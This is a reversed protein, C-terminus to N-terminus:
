ARSLVAATRRAASSSFGLVKKWSQQVDIALLVDSEIVNGPHPYGYQSSLLRRSGPEGDLSDELPTADSSLTASM